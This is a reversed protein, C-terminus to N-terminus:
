AAGEGGGGGGGVVRALLRAGLELGLWGGPARTGGLASLEPVVLRCDRRLVYLTRGWSAAVSGLGHLLLWPEAPGGRRRRLRGWRRPELVYYVLSVEGGRLPRRRAGSALLLLASAIMYLRLLM